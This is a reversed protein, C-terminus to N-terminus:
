IMEKLKDTLSTRMEGSTYFYRNSGSKIRVSSIYSNIVEGRRRIQLLDYFDMKRQTNFEIRHSYKNKTLLDIVKAQQDDSASVYIVTRAGDIRDVDAPRISTVTGDKKVFWDTVVLEVSDEYWVACEVLSIPNNTIVEKTVTYESSSLDIKHTPSVKTQIDVRLIEALNEKWPICETFVNRSRLAKYIFDKANYMGKEMDPGIYPPIWSLMNARLFPRETTMSDSLSRYMEIINYIEFEPANTFIDSVWGWNDNFIHLIDKITLVTKNEVTDPEAGDIIGIFGNDLCAYDDQKASYAELITVKSKDDFITKIFLDYGSPDESVPVIKKIEFTKKDRIYCRM